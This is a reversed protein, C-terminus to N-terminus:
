NQQWPLGDAKWGNINSRQKNQDCDGEFGNTINYCNNYGINKAYQAAMNSRKGTKCLFFLKANKHDDGILSKLSDDIINAFEKNESMSPYVMWPLLISKNKFQSDNVVGVFLFEADTRVDILVSSEDNKLIDFAIKPNVQEVM